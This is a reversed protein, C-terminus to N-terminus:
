VEKLQKEIDKRNINKQENFEEFNINYRAMLIDEITMIHAMTELFYEKNLNRSM